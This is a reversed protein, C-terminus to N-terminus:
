TVEYSVTFESLANSISEIAQVEGQTNIKVVLGRAPDTFAEVDANSAFESIVEGIVRKASLERLRPKFIKGVATLPMEELVEIHVPNAARESIHDRGFQKLENIDVDSVGEALTVCLCPLEGAYADPQGVAAALDIAPHTSFADEIVKPDINHGGRIILDKARGTMWFYGQADQRALDGTIFWDDIFAGENKEVQKYGKFVNPGQIVIVGPEDVQCDRVYRGDDDLVVCKMHQYPTRMGISGVRKEGHQPNASSTVTGETLGYAEIINIGTKDMYRRFLEPSIPAAGCVFYEISSLDTDPELSDLLGSVMTPVTMLFSPQYKEVFNWYNAMVEKNRFGSRTLYIAHGGAAFITLGANFFANVHFLPLGGFTSTETNMSRYDTMMSAVHVQNAHTLQALKPTGTTGGTHFYSAVDTAQIEREFVIRAAESRSLANSFDRVPIDGLSEVGDTPETLNVRFIVKLTPVQDAIVAVKEWMDEGPTPGLVVLAQAESEVMIDRLADAALMHNIPSVIGIAQAGWLAYHTEPLNPMVVTTVGGSEVGAEHLANATQNIRRIFAGYSLVFPEEDISGTDQFKLAPAQPQREATKAIVDYTNEGRWRDTSPVLEFQEIDTLSAIRM